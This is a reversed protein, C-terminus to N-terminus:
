DGRTLPKDYVYTPKELIAAVADSLELKSTDLYFREPPGKHKFEKMLQLCRVGMQHEKVRLSDRRLLEKEDTWLVVYKIEIQGVEDNIKQSFKEIDKDFAVYDIIVNMNSIIFNSSLSAINEWVLALSEESEWPPKYGGVVMHHILDGEIYASQDFQKALHRSTTSKGVGAPGSVIYIRSM